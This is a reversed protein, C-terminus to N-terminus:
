KLVFLFMWPSWCVSAELSTQATCLLRVGRICNYGTLVLRSLKPQGGPRSGPFSTHPEM